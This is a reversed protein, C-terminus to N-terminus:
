SLVKESAKIGSLVAGEISGYFSHDGAIIFGKPTPYSKSQFFNNRQM